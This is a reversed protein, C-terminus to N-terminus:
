HSEEAYCVTVDTTARIVNVAGPGTFTMSEYQRLLWGTAVAAAAGEAVYCEGSSLNKVAIAKRNANAALIQTSGAGATTTQGRASSGTVAGVVRLVGVGAAGIGSRVMDWTAGNYATLHAATRLTGAGATALADALAAGLSRVRDWTAGNFAHAFSAVDLLAAAPSAAGPNAVADALAGVRTLFRRYAAGDFGAVGVAATTATTGDAGQVTAETGDLRLVKLLQEVAGGNSVQAFRGLEVSQEDTDVDIGFIAFNTAVAPTGTQLRVRFGSFQAGTPLMLRTGPVMPFWGRSTGSGLSPSTNSGAAYDFCVEVKASAHSSMLLTLSRGRASITSRENVSESAVGAASLEALTRTEVHPTRYSQGLYRERTNSGVAQLLERMFTRVETPMIMDSFIM